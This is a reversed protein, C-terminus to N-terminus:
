TTSGFRQATRGSLLNWVTFSTMSSALRRGPQRLIDLDSQDFVQLLGDARLLVLGLGLREREVRLDDLAFLVALEELVVLLGGFLQHVPSRRWAVRGSQPPAQGSQM